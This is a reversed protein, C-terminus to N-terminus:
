TGKALRDIHRFGDTLACAKAPPERDLFCDLVWQIETKRCRVYIRRIIHLELELAKMETKMKARSRPKGWGELTQKKVGKARKLVLEVAEHAPRGCFHQLWDRAVVCRAKFRMRSIPETTGKPPTRLLYSPQVGNELDRLHESHSILIELDDWSRLDMNKQCFAVVARLASYAGVLMMAKGEEIQPSNPAGCIGQGLRYCVAADRLLKCIEADTGSPVAAELWPVAAELWTCTRNPGFKGAYENKMQLMSTGFKPPRMKKQKTM